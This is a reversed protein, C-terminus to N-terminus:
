LFLIDIRESFYNYAFHIHYYYFKFYDPFVFKLFVLIEIKLHFIKFNYKISMLLYNNDVYM